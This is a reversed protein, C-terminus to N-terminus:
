TPVDPSAARVGTGLAFLLLAGCWLWYGALVEEDGAVGFGMCCLVGAGFLLSFCLMSAASMRRSFILLALVLFNGIVPIALTPHELAVLPGFALGFIGFVVSKSWLFAVKVAPVVLSLAFTAAGFRLLLGGPQSPRLQLTRRQSPSGPPTSSSCEALTRRIDSALLFPAVDGRDILAGHECVRITVDADHMFLSRLERLCVPCDRVSAGRECPERFPSRIARRPVVPSTALSRAADDLGVRELTSCTIADLWLAGCGECRAVRTAGRSVTM